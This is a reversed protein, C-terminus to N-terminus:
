IELDSRRAAPRAGCASMGGCDVADTVLSRAAAHQQLEM